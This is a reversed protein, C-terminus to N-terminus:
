TPWALSSTAEAQALSLCIPHPATLPQNDCVHPPYARPLLHHTAPRLCQECVTQEEKLDLDLLM